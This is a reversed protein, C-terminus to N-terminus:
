NKNMINKMNSLLKIKEESDKTIYISDLPDYSVEQYGALLVHLGGLDLIKLKELLAGKQADTQAVFLIRQDFAKINFKQLYLQDEISLRYGKIKRKLSAESAYSRELELFVLVVPSTDKEKQRFILLADPQNLSDEIYAEKENLIRILEWNTQVSKKYSEQLCDCVTAVQVQHYMRYPSGNIISRTRDEAEIGSGKLVELGNKALTVIRYGVRYSATYGPPIFTRNVMLYNHLEFQRIREDITRKKKGKYTFRYIYEFDVFGHKAIRRFLDFDDELIMPKNKNGM